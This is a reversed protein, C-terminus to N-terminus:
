VSAPPPPCPVRARSVEQALEHTVRPETTLVPRDFLRVGFPPARNKWYWEKCCEDEFDKLGRLM